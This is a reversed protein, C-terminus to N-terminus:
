HSSLIDDTMVDTLIWQTRHHFVSDCPVYISAKCNIFCQFLLFFFYGRSGIRCLLTASDPVVFALFSM